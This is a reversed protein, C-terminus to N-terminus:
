ETHCGAWEAALADLALHDREVASVAEFVERMRPSTARAVVEAYFAAAHAERRASEAIADCWSAPEGEAIGLDDPKAQSLMKSFVSCHEAEIRSLRKYTSALVEDGSMEAMAAYFRANSRELGIATQLDAREGETPQIADESALFGGPGTFYNEAAGCFPCRSPPETGLYTEGCIRCRLMQM